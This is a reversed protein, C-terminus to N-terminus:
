DMPNFFTTYKKIFKFTIGFVLIIGAFIFDTQTFHFKSEVVSSKLVFIFLLTTATSIWGPYENKLVIRWSFLNASSQYNKFDPIFAPVQNAWKCYDDGFKRSLFQEEAFMIREYYIWFVLIFIISFWLNELFCTLGLWIFGNGLYLPHRVISYIGKTNLNNAVQHSRNRGSSQMFRRGVTLIRIFHGLAIFIFAGVFISFQFYEIKHLKNYPTLFAVPISLIILILPLHGRYRFLFNGSKEFSDILAL